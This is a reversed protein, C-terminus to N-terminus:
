GKTTAFGDYSDTVMKFQDMVHDMYYTGPITGFTQEYLAVFSKQAGSNGQQLNVKHAFQKQHKKCKSLKAKLDERSGMRLKWEMTTKM